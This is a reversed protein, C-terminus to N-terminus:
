SWVPQFLKWLSSRRPFPALFGGSAADVRIPIDHGSRAQLEDLAASRPPPSRNGDSVSGPYQKGSRPVATFNTVKHRM